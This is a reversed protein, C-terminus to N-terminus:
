VESSTTIRLNQGMICDTVVVVVVETGHLNAGNLRGNVGAGPTRFNSPMTKSTSPVSHYTIIIIIIFLLKGLTERVLFWVKDRYM